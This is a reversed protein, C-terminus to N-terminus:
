GRKSNLLLQDMSELFSNYSRAKPWNPNTVDLITAQIPNYALRQSLENKELYMISSWLSQKLLKVVFFHYLFMGHTMQFM